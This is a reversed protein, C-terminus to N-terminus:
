PLNQPMAANGIRRLGAVATGVNGFRAPGCRGRDAMKESCFAYKSLSRLTRKGQKV